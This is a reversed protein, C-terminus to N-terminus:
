MAGFIPAEINLMSMLGPLALAVAAAVGIIIFAITQPDSSGGNGAYNQQADAEAKPVTPTKVPIARSGTTGYFRTILRMEEDSNPAPKNDTISARLAVRTGDSTYVINQGSLVGVFGRGEVWVPAGSDGPQAGTNEWYVNGGLQGIYAGCAPSNTASGAFCIKDGAQLAGAPEVADTSFSNGAVTVGSDFLVLAWDNGTSGQQYSRSPYLRGVPQWDGGSEVYVRDGAAGCHAATYGANARGKQIYGLTCHAKEGVLIRDGQRVVATQADAPATVSMLLAAVAVAAAGVRSNRM